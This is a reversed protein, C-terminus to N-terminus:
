LSRIFRGSIRGTVTVALAATNSHHAEITIVDGSECAFDGACPVLITNGSASEVQGPAIDVTTGGRTHRVRFRRFGGTQSAFSGFGSWHWIGEHSAPIVFTGSSRITDTDYVTTLDANVFTYATNHAVSKSITVQVAPPAELADIRSDLAEVVADAAEQDKLYQEWNKQCTPESVLQVPLNGHSV